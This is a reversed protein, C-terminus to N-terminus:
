DISDTTSKIVPCFVQELLRSGFRYGPFKWNYVGPVFTYDRWVCVKPARPKVVKIPWYRMVVPAVCEPYSVPETVDIVCEPITPAICEPYSVDELLPWDGEPDEDPTGDIKTTIVTTGTPTRQIVTTKVTHTTEERSGEHRTVTTEAHITETTGVWQWDFGSSDSTGCFGEALAVSVTLVMILVFISVFRKM